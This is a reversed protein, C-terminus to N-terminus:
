TLSSVTDLSSINLAAIALDSHKVRPTLIADNKSMTSPIHKNKEGIVVSIPYMGRTPPNIDPTMPKAM